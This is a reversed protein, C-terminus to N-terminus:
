NAENEVEEDYMFFSVNFENDLENFSEAPGEGSLLKIVDTPLALSKHKRVRKELNKSSIIPDSSDKARNYM